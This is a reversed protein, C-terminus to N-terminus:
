KTETKDPDGSLAHYCGDALTFAYPEAPTQSM